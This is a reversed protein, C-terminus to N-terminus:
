RCGHHRPGSGAAAIRAAARLPSELTGRTRASPRFVRQEVRGAGLHADPLGAGARPESDQVVVSGTSAGYPRNDVTASGAPAWNCTAGARPARATRRATM